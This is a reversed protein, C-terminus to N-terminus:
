QDGLKLACLTKDEGNARRKNSGKGQLLSNIEDDIERKTQATMKSIEQAWLTAAADHFRRRSTDWNKISKWTGSFITDEIQKAM